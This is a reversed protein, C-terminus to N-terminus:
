KDMYLQEIKKIMGEDRSLRAAKLCSKDLKAGYELLLDVQSEWTM